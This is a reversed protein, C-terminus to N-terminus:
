RQIIKIQSLTANLNIILKKIEQPENEALSEQETINDEQIITQYVNDTNSEKNLGIFDTQSLSSSNSLIIPIDKSVILNFISLNSKIDLVIDEDFDMDSIVIDVKSNNTTIHGSKLKISSLNAEISSLNSNINFSIPINRPFIIDLNKTYLGIGPPLFKQELKINEVQNEDRYNSEILKDYNSVFDAKFMTSDESKIKAQMAVFNMESNIEVVDNIPIINTTRNEIINSSYGLISTITIGVSLTTIAFAISFATTNKARFISIGILIICITWLLKYPLFISLSINTGGSHYYIFAVSLILLFIYIKGFNLKIARNKIKEESNNDSIM